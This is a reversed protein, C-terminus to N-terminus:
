ALWTDWGHPRPGPSSLRRYLFFPQLSDTPAEGEEEGRGAAAAGPAAAPPAPLATEESPLRTGAAAAATETGAPDSAVLVAPPLVGAIGSKSMEERDLRM